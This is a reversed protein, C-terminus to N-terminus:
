IQFVCTILFTSIVGTKKTRVTKSLLLLVTSSLEGFFKREKGEGKGGKDSAAVDTSYYFSCVSPSAKCKISLLEEGRRSRHGNDAVSFVISFFFYWYKQLFLLSISLQM